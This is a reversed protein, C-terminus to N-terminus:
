KAKLYKVLEKMEAEELVFAPMIGATFGAPIDKDPNAIANVLYEASRTASIGKLSPGVLISDDTISHCGNCGNAEYIEEGKDTNNFFKLLESMDEDSLDFTPMIGPYFGAPVDKDPTAIADKIYTADYKDSIGILSPGVLISDDTISHCGNCGNQEYVEQGKSIKKDEAGPTRKSSNYWAKYEAVPMVHIKSFMYSHRTGCYEACEVDYTGVSSSNFWQKTIRGPVVDEKMRFAPVFFSHLVDNIPATMNLIVNGSVPVYLEATKHVYGDTNAPYTYNWSWKKGELEISLSEDVAPMTRATVMSTYGYWFCVFLTITPVVTWVIELLTNHTINEIDEDKVNSERYKWALYVMPLVVSAFLVLSIWLNIELAEQIHEAIITGSTNFGQLM